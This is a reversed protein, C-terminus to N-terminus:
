DCYLRVLEDPKAIPYPAFYAAYLVSFIAANAGIGLGLALVAIATFGWQRRLMRVAFRLDAWTEDLLRVGRADRCVEKASDVGGFARLAALRAEEASMGRRLNEDIQRDLHYRVEEELEDEVRGRRLLTRLRLPVTYFWRQIRM